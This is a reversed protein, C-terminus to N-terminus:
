GGIKDKFEERFAKDQNVLRIAAERDEIGTEAMKREIEEESASLKTNSKKSSKTETAPSGKKDGSGIIEKMHRRSVISITLDIMEPDASIEPNLKDLEAEIEGRYKSVIGLEDDKEFKDLSNKRSVLIASNSFPKLRKEYDSMKSDAIEEALDKVSDVLVNIANKDYGASTLKDRFKDVATKKESAPRSSEVVKSLEEVRRELDARGAESKKWKREYEAAVQEPTRNPDKLKRDAESLQQDGEANPDSKQGDNGQENENEEESKRLDDM